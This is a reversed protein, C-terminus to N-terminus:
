GKGLVLDVVWCGLVHEGPQRCHDLIARDTCGAEELADSLLPLRDFARGAYIGAALALIRPNRPPPDTAVFRHNGALARINKWEQWRSFPSGCVDRLLNALRENPDSRVARHIMWVADAAYDAMPHDPTVVALANTVATAEAWRHIEQESEGHYLGCAFENARQFADALEEGTAQGDAFRTALELAARHDKNRLLQRSCRCCAAAFLRLKRDSEKDRLFQLMERPDNCALWERERV